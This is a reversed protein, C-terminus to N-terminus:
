KAYKIFVEGYGPGGTDPDIYYIMSVGIKTYSKKILKESFSVMLADLYAQKAASRPYDFYTSFQDHVNAKVFSTSWKLDGTYMRAVKYTAADVTADKKLPRLGEEARTDNLNAILEREYEDLWMWTKTRTVVKLTQVLRKKKTASWSAGSKVKYTVATTVNYTGAKLKVSTKTKATTQKGKKVTVTKAVLKVDGKISVNPKITATKGKLVNKNAIKKITVTPAVKATQVVAAATQAQVPVAHATPAVLVLATFSAVVFASFKRLNPM